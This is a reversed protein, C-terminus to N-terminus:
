WHGPQPFNSLAPPPTRIAQIRTGSASPAPFAAIPASSEFGTRAQSRIAVSRCRPFERTATGGTSTSPVPSESSPAPTMSLNVWSSTASFGSQRCEREEGRPNPRPAVKLPKRETSEMSKPETAPRFPHRSVGRATRLYQVTPPLLIRSAMSRLASFLCSIAGSTAHDPRHSMTESASPSTRQWTPTDLPSQARDARRRSSAAPARNLPLLCPLENQTLPNANPSLRPVHRLSRIYSRFILLKRRFPSRYTTSEVNPLDENWCTRHSARFEWPM